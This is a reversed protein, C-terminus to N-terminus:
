NKFRMCVTIQNTPYTGVDKPQSSGVATMATGVDQMYHISVRAVHAYNAAVTFTAQVDRYM